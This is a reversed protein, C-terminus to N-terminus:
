EANRIKFREEVAMLGCLEQVDMVLGKLLQSPAAFNVAGMYSFHPTEACGVQISPEIPLFARTSNRESFLAGERIDEWSAWDFNRSFFARL